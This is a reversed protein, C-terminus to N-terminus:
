NQVILVYLSLIAFSPSGNESRAVEGLNFSYKVHFELRCVSHRSFDTSVHSLADFAFGCLSGGKGLVGSRLVKPRGLLPIGLAFRSSSPNLM